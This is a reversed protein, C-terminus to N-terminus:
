KKQQIRNGEPIQAAFTIWIQRVISHYLTSLSYYSNVIGM